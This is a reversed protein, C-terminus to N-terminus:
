RMTCSASVLARLCAPGPTDRRPRRHAVAAVVSSTSTTSSPRPAAPALAVAAAPVAEQAHALPDVHAAALQDGTGAGAAAELHAGPQRQDFPGARSRDPDQDDVVLRQHPRAEPHDELGLGVELDDALGAVPELGDLQGRPSLGVDDEHVDAHGGRRRRPWRAADGAGSGVADRDQDERREVEVLVDELGQPGAGAAEQELVRGGLVEDGGDPDDGGAVGQERGDIVRRTISSNAACAAASGGVGLASRSCSM